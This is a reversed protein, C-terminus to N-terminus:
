MTPTTVEVDNNMEQKQEAKKAAFFDNKQQKTLGLKIVEPEVVEMKSVSDYVFNGKIAIDQGKSAGKLSNIQDGVATVITTHSGKITEGDKEYKFTDKVNLVMCDVGNALSQVKPDNALEGQVVFTNEQKATTPTVNNVKFSVVPQNTTPNIHTDLVGTFAFKKNGAKVNDYVMQADEGFLTVFTLDSPEQTELNPDYNENTIVGAQLFVGNDGQQLTLPHKEGDGVIGILQMRNKDMMPANDQMKTFTNEKIPKEYADNYNIQGRDITNMNEGLEQKLNINIGKFREYLSQLFVDHYSQNAEQRTATPTVNFVLRKIKELSDIKSKFDPDFTNKSIGRLQDNFMNSFQIFTTKDLDEGVYYNLTSKITKEHKDYYMQAIDNLTDQLHEMLQNILVDDCLIDKMMKHEFIYNLLMNNDVESCITNLNNNNIYEQLLRKLNEKQEENGVTIATIIELNDFTFPQTKNLIEDLTQLQSLYVKQAIKDMKWRTKTEVVWEGIPNYCQDYCYKLYADKLLKSSVGKDEMYDFHTVMFYEDVNDFINKLNGSFNSDYPNFEDMLLEGYSKSTNLYDELNNNNQFYEDLDKDNTPISMINVKFGFNALQKAVEPTNMKGANDNDLSLNVTEIGKDKLLQLQQPTIAVGMLALANDINQKELAFVDFFGEVLYVSDVNDINEINYLTASKKLDPLTEDATKTYLYKTDFQNGFDRGCFGVVEGNANKIPITIRDRLFQYKQNDINALGMNNVLAGVIDPGVQLNLLPFQNFNAIDTCVGIDHKKILDNTLGRNVIYKRAQQIKDNNVKSNLLNNKYISNFANYLKVYNDM